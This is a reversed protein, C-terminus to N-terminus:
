NSEFTLLYLKMIKRSDRMDIGSENLSLVKADFGLNHATIVSCSARM